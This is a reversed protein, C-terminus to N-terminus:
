ILDIPPLAAIIGKAKAKGIDAEYGIGFPYSEGEPLDLFDQQQAVAVLRGASM